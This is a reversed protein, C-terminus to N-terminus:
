TVASCACQGGHDAGLPQSVDVQAAVVQRAGQGSQGGSDLGGVEGVVCESAVHRDAVTFWEDGDWRKRLQYMYRSAM